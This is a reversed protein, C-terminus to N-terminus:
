QEEKTLRSEQKVAKWEYGNEWHGCTAIPKYQSVDGITNHRVNNVAQAESKARTKGILEWRDQIDNEYDDCIMYYRRYVFYLSKRVTGTAQQKSIRDISALYNQIYDACENM